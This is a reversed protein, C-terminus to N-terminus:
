MRVRAHAVYVPHENIACTCRVFMRVLARQMDPHVVFERLLNYFSFIKTRRFCLYM